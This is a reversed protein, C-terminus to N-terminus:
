ADKEVECALLDLNKWRSQHALVALDLSKRYPGEVNLGTALRAALRVNLVSLYSM